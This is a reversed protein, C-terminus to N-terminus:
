ESRLRGFVIALMVTFGFVSSFFVITSANFGLAFFGAYKLLFYGIVFNFDAWLVNILPSSEGVGPPSAFPSQFRRGTIGHIFHPIGNVLFFASAIYALYSM